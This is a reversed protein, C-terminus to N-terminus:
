SLRNTHQDFKPRVSRLPTRGLNPPSNPRRRTGSGVTRSNHSRDTFIHLPELGAVSHNRIYKAGTPATEITSGAPFRQAGIQTANQTDQPVVAPERFVELDWPPLEEVKWIGNGELLTSDNRISNNACDM